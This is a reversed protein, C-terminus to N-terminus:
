VELEVNLLLGPTDALETAAGAQLLRRLVEEIHAGDPVLRSVDELACLRRALLM